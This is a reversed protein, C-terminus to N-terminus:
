GDRGGFPPMLLGSAAAEGGMREEVSDWYVIPRPELVGLVGAPFRRREEELTLIAPRALLVASLASAPTASGAASPCTSTTRQISTLLAPLSRAPQCSRPHPATM